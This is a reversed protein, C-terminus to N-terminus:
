CSTLDLKESRRGGLLEELSPVVAIVSEVIVCERKRICNLQVQREYAHVLAAEVLVSGEGDDFCLVVEM